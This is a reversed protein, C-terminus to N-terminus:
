GLNGGQFYLESMSGGSGNEMFISQQTMGPKMSVHWQSLLDSSAKRHKIRM